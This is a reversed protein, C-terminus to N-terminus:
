QVLMLRPKVNMSASQFKERYDVYCVVSNERHMGQQNHQRHRGQHHTDGARTRRTLVKLLTAAAEVVQQLHQTRPSHMHRHRTPPSRALRRCRTPHRPRLLSAKTGLLCLRATSRRAVERALHQQQRRLAHLM